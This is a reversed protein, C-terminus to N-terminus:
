KSVRYPFILNIVQNGTIVNGLIFHYFEQFLLPKICSLHYQLLKKSGSYMEAILNNNQMTKLRSALGDAM